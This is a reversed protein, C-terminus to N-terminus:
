FGLLDKQSLDKYLLINTNFIDKIIIYNDQLIRPDLCKERNTRPICKNKM